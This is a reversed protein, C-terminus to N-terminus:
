KTATSSNQEINGRVRNLILNYPMVRDRGLERSRAVAKEAGMFVQDPDTSDVPFTAVGVCVTVMVQSKSEEPVLRRDRVEIRINEAMELATATDAGPALIALQGGGYRGLVDSPKTLDRLVSGVMQIVADGAGHGYRSNFSRLNDIDVLLLSVPHGATGAKIFEKVAQRYFQRHHLFGTLTDTALLERIKGELMDNALVIGAQGGIISLMQVHKDEFALPHMEGLVLVGTPEGQAMLPVVLLSRFRKFPGAAEALKAEQRMDHVVVPEKTSIAQGVLGEGSTLVLNCMDERFPGRAAGPLFVQRQESWFLIVATHYSVIRRAEVLIQDFFTEPEYSNRLRKAVQFLATLERNSLELNVYRRLILQAAIVPIFMMVAWSLGVQDYVLAMLAGYPATILYIYGDWRMADWGFLSPHDRRGPLLYIFVLLHNVAFYVLTFIFIALLEISILEFLTTAAAAALIHQSSNFLTTRLPNGRNAIGLGILSILGTLWATAAGGFVLQTALVVVYGGSLYGQPFPVATWEALIGMVLFVALLGAQDLNLQPFIMWLWTFGLLIITWTYLLGLGSQKNIGRVGKNCMNSLDPM